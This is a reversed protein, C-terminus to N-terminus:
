RVYESLDTAIQARPEENITVFDLPTNKAINEFSKKDLTLAIKHQLAWDLAEQPNYNLTQFVKVSVGPAPIKEGTAQYAQLTLERLKAEEEAVRAISDAIAELLVRNEDEWKELSAKKAESLTKASQRVEAVKKIQESLTTEM